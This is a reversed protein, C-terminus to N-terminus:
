LLLWTERCQWASCFHLARSTPRSRAPPLFVVLSNRRPLHKAPLTETLGRDLRRSVGLRRHRLLTSGVRLALERREAGVHRHLDPLIWGLVVLWRRRGGEPPRQSTQEISPRCTTTIARVGFQSHGAGKRCGTKWIAPPTSR